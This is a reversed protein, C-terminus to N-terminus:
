GGVNSAAGLFGVDKHIGGLFRGQFFVFFVQLSIFRSCPSMPMDYPPSFLPLSILKAPSKAM